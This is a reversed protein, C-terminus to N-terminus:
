EATAGVLEILEVDMDTQLRICLETLRTIRRGGLLRKQGSRLLGDHRMNAVLDGKRVSRMDLDDPIQQSWSSAAEHTTWDHSVYSSYNALSSAKADSNFVCPCFM